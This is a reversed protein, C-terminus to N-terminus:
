NARHHTGEDAVIMLAVTPFPDRRPGEGREEACPRVMEADCRAAAARRERKGEM